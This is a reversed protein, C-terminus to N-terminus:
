MTTNITDEGIAIPIEEMPQEPAPTETIPITPFIIVLPLQRPSVGAAISYPSVGLGTRAGASVLLTLADATVCKDFVHECLQKYKFPSHDTPHQQLIIVGTARLNRPLAGHLMEMQSDKALEQM